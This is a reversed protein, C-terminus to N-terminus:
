QAWTVADGGIYHYFIYLDDLGSPATVKVPGSAPGVLLEGPPVLASSGTTSPLTQLVYTPITFTQASALAICEVLIGPTIAPPATGSLLTSAIATIDVFGNPDGGSWTITLPTSRSIAGATVTAENTWQFAAAGSSVTIPASLAGVAAGGSGTVTFTGPEVTWVYSSGTGPWGTDSLFFPNISTGALLNAITAGGVLGSYGRGSTGCGTTSAPTCNQAVPQTGEPGQISLNPGADLYTLQSLVPDKPPPFGLFPSASCNGVSPVLTLGQFTDLQSTNFTAIEGSVTDNDWQLPAGLVSLNLFNSLLSIAGVNAQGKSTIVPALDGYNIGDVDSCTPGTPDVSLSTFNSIISGTQVAVQVYCGQVGTAPVIFDIQDEATYPSRGAYTVVAKLGPGIWVTVPCTQGSGCLNTQVPPASGETTADVAGLGTGWITVYDGPATTSFPTIETNPTTQLRANYAETFIGPGSGAENVSFTGFSMATVTIPFTASTAGNYTVSVTGTGIPANSPLVANIQTAYVFELYAQVSVGNVTVNVSTGSLTTPLPYPNWFAYATPGIGSGYISFYSGQAIAGNPLPECSCEGTATGPLPNVANSAANQIQVITPQAFGSAALLGLTLVM